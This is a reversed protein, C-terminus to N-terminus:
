SMYGPVDHTCDVGEVGFGEVRSVRVSSRFAATGRAVATLLTCSLTAGFADGLDEVLDQLENLELPDGLPVVRLSLFGFKRQYQM